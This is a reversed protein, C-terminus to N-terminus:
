CEIVRNNHSNPPKSKQAKQLECHRRLETAIFDIPDRPRQKCVETVAQVLPKSLKKGIYSFEGDM